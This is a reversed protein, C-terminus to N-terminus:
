RVGRTIRTWLYFWMTPHYRLRSVGEDLPQCETLSGNVCDTVAQVLLPIAAATHLYPYTVFSDKRSVDFTAQAIVAGTDIGADVVHVTTGVLDGRGEALAWYGGHVGRYRPTIGAHTNIFTASTSTLTEQDLIRTGNVVVVRPELGRLLQRLEESNVSAVRRVSVDLEGDDLHNEEKIQEIRQRCLVRLLPVVLSLFLVQGLVASAGLRRRRRKLMESRPLPDELILAVSSFTRCLARYLIRTSAGDQALM